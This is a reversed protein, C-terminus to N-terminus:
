SLFGREKFKNEVKVVIQKTFNSMEKEIEAEIMRRIDGVSLEVIRGKTLIIKIKRTNQGLTIIEGENDVVQRDGEQISSHDNRHNQLAEVADTLNDKQRKMAM